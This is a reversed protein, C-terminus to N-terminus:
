DDFSQPALRQARRETVREGAPGLGQFIVERTM